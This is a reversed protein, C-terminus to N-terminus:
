KWKGLSELAGTTMYVVDLTHLGTLKKIERDATVPDHNAKQMANSLKMYFQLKKVRQARESPTAADMIRRELLPRVKSNIDKSTGRYIEWNQNDKGMLKESRMHDAKLQTVSASQEAWGSDLVTRPDIGRDHLQKMRLWNCDQYAEKNSSTTVQQWSEVASRGGSRNAYVRNFRDQVLANAQSMSLREVMGTQPNTRMVYNGTTSNMALDLDMGPTTNGANRMPRFRLTNPDIGQAALDRRLENVVGKTHLRETANYARQEAPSASFKLYGKAHPRHKIAATQDMLQTRLQNVQQIPAGSRRANQLAQYTEHHQKVMEGGYERERKFDVRRQADRWANLKAQRQAAQAKAQYRLVGQTVKRTVMRKVYTTAVKTVAGGVGGEQYGEYATIMYDIKPSWYRAATTVAGKAAGSVGGKEYGTVGGSTIGYTIALPGGGAVFPAAYMAYVAAEQYNNSIDIGLQSWAASEDAKAQEKQSRAKIREVIIAGVESQKKMDYPTGALQRDMWDRVPYRDEPPLSAILRELRNRNDKAKKIEAAMKRNQAMMQFRVMSDWATPTRTYAGTELTTIADKESQLDSTKCTIQYYLYTRSEEDTTKALTQKLRAIDGELWKINNKHHAIKKQADPPATEKPPDSLKANYRPIIAVTIENMEKPQADLSGPGFDIIHNKVGKGKVGYELVITEPSVTNMIPWVKVLPVDKLAYWGEKRENKWSECENYSPGKLCICSLTVNSVSVNELLRGDVSIRGKVERRSTNNYGGPPPCQHSAYTKDEVVFSFQEGNWTMEKLEEPAPPLLYYSMGPISAPLNGRIDFDYRSYVPPRDEDWGKLWNWIGMSKYISYHPELSKGASIKLEEFFSEPLADPGSYVAGSPWVSTAGKSTSTKSKESVLKKLEKAAAKARNQAQCKEESVNPPLGISQILSVVRNMRERATRLRQAITKGHMLATSTEWENEYAAAMESEYRVKEGAELLSEVEQQVAQFEVLTPNLQRLWAMARESPFDFLPAWITDFAARQYPTMPGILLRMSQHATSVEGAWYTKTLANISRGLQTTVVPPLPPEQTLAEDPAGNPNIASRCPDELYETWRKDLTVPRLLEQPEEMKTQALAAGPDMPTLATVPGTLQSEDDYEDGEDLSVHAMVTATAPSVPEPKLPEELQPDFSDGITIPAMPETIGRQLSVFAERFKSIAPHKDMAAQMDALARERQGTREFLRGRGYLAWAYRPLIKIANNYNALAEEFAGKATLIDARLTMVEARASDSSSENALTFAQDCLEISKDIDGKGLWAEGQIILAFKLTPNNTLAVKTDEIAEDYRELEKLAFARFLLINAIIKQNGSKYYRLAATQDKVAQVNDGLRIATKGRSYYPNWWGPKIDIASSFDHYAESDHRMQMLSYGRYNLSEAHYPNLLLAHDFLDLAHDYNKRTVEAKGESYLERFKTTDEARVDEVLFFLLLVPIILFGSVLPPNRHHFLDPLAKM